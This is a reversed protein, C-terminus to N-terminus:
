EYDFYEMNTYSSNTNNKIDQPFCTMDMDHHM